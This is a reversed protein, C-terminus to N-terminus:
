RRDIVALTTDDLRMRGTAREELVFERFAAEEFVNLLRECRETPQELLWAGLADTMCLIMPAARDHTPWTKVRAELPQHKLFANADFNTGLLTPRRAFDAAECYPFSDILKVGDILVALSDGIALVEAESPLLRVGLLTAFSGRDFAAQFAWSMSERDYAQQYERIVQDLWPLTPEPTECFRRVLLAAWCRPDFSVSAGDSLALVGSTEDFECIDDNEDPMGPDKAVSARFSVRLPQPEANM